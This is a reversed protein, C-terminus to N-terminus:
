SCIYLCKLFIVRYETPGCIFIYDSCIVVVTIYVVCICSEHVNNWVDSILGCMHIIKVM